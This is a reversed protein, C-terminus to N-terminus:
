FNRLKGLKKGNKNHQSDVVQSKKQNKQIKLMIKKIKRM